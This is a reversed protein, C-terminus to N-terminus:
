TLFCQLFFFCLRYSSVVGAIFHKNGKCKSNSRDATLFIGGYVVYDIEASFIYYSCVVGLASCVM